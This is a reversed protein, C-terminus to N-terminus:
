VGEVMLNHIFSALRPLESAPMRIGTSSAFVWDGTFISKQMQTVGIWLGDYRTEATYEWKCEPVTLASDM